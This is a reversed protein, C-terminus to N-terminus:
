HFLNLQQNKHKKELTLDQGRYISIDDLLDWDVVLFKNDSSLKKIKDPHKQVFEYLSKTKVVACSIPTLDRKFYAQLTYTPYFYGKKIAELRKKYETATGTYREYRITFTSYDYDWQIRSAIGFLQNKPSKGIYDIGSYKDMWLLTENNSKEINVLKYRNFIKDKLIDVCPQVLDMDTRFDNYRM